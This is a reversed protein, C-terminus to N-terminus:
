GTYLLLGVSDTGDPLFPIGAGTRSRESIFIRAPPFHPDPLERRDRRRQRRLLKLYLCDDEMRWVGAYDEYEQHLRRSTPTPGTGAYGPDSDGGYAGDDLLRLDLHHKRPRSRPRCGGTTARLSGTGENSLGLVGYDLDTTNLRLHRLGDADAEGPRMPRCSPFKTGDDAPDM